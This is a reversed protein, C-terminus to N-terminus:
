HATESVNTIYRENANLVNQQDMIPTTYISLSKNTDSDSESLSGDTSDSGFFIFSSNSNFNEQCTQFTEISDFKFIDAPNTKHGYNCLNAFPQWLFPNLKLARRNAEAAMEHRETVSCLQALLQLAFCAVEGFDDIIGDLHELLVDSKNILAM